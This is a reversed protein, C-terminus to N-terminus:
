FRDVEVKFYCNYFLNVQHLLDLQLGSLNRLSTCSSSTPLSRTSTSVQTWGLIVDCRLSELNPLCTPKLIVDRRIRSRGGKSHRTLTFHPNAQTQSPTVFLKRFEVERLSKPVINLCRNSRNGVKIVWSSWNGTATTALRPFPRIRPLDFNKREVVKDEPSNLVLIVKADSKWASVVKFCKPFGLNGTPHQRSTLPLQGLLILVFLKLYLKNICLDKCYLFRLGVGHNFLTCFPNFYKSILQHWFLVLLNFM